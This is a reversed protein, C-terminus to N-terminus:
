TISNLWANLNSETLLEMDKTAKTGYDNARQRHLTKWRHAVQHSSRGPFFQLFYTWRNGNQHQLKMLRDDEDDTWSKKNHMYYRDREGNQEISNWLLNWRQRCKFPTRTLRLSIREWDYGCEQMAIKLLNDEESTWISLDRLREWRKKCQEDSRDVFEGSIKRWNETGVNRVAIRL